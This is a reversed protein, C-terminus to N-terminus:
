EEEKVKKNLQIMFLNMVEKLDNLELINSLENEKCIGSLIYKKGIEEMKIICGYLDVIDIPKKLLIHKIFHKLSEIENIQDEKLVKRIRKTKKFKIARRKDM